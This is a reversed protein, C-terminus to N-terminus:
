KPWINNVFISLIYSSCYMRNFEEFGFYYLLLSPKEKLLLRKYFDTFKKLNEWCGHKCFRNKNKIYNLKRKLEFKVLWFKKLLYAKWCLIIIIYNFLKRLKTLKSRYNPYNKTKTNDKIIVRKFIVFLNYLPQVLKKYNYINIVFLKFNMFFSFFFQKIKSVMNSIVNIFSKKKKLLLKNVTDNKILPMNNTVYNYTKKHKHLQKIKLKKITNHKKDFTFCNFIEVQLVLCNNLM